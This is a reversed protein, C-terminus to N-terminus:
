RMENVEVFADPKRALQDVLFRQRIHEVVAFANVATQRNSVKFDCGGGRKTGEGVRRGIYQQEFAPKAPSEICCGDDLSGCAVAM